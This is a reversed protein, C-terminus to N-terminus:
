SVTIVTTDTRGQFTATITAEGTAVATVLGAANVTAKTADSTTYVCRTDATVDETGADPFTATVALQQTAAPAKTATAPLMAISDARTWSRNADIAADLLEKIAIAAPSYGPGRKAYTAGANIAKALEIKIKNANSILGNLNPLSSAKM